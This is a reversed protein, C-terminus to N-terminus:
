CNFGDIKAQLQEKRFRLTKEQEVLEKELADCEVKLMFVDVVDQFFDDFSYNDSDEMSEKEKLYLEYLRDYEDGTLEFQVEVEDGIKKEKVIEM